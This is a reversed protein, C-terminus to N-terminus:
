NEIKVHERLVIFLCLYAISCIHSTHPKVKIVLRYSKLSVCGASGYVWRHYTDLSSERFWDQIMLYFDDTFEPLPDDGQLFAVSRSASGTNNNQFRFAKFSGRATKGLQFTSMMTIMLPTTCQQGTLFQFAIPMGPVQFKM